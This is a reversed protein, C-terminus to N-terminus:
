NQRFFSDLEQFVIKSESYMPYQIAFVHILPHTEGKPFNHLDHTANANKLIKEFELTEAQIADEDSTVLYLPPLNTEDILLTPNLLYKEYVKDKDKKETICSNFASLFDKRQTKLMISILGAARFEIGTHAIGFEDQLKKSGQIALVFLSLLAGASDGTLYCKSLDLELETEHEKIYKLANMVDKIQHILTTEPIRRYSLSVVHYGMRAWEYNSNVNVEKYSAFLGGGHINIMVPASGVNNKSRYIDFLHGRDEDNQYAIDTRIDLDSLDQIQKALRKKDGMEFLTRLVLTGIKSM